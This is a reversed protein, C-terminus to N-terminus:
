SNKNDNMTAQLLYLAKAMHSFATKPSISLKEGVEIYNMGHIRVLLFVERCRPPLLDVAQSVAQLRQQFDITQEPGCNDETLEVSEDEPMSETCQMKKKRFHDIALNHAIRYLYAKVQRVSSSSPSEYLPKFRLFTEQLLDAATDKCRTQRCLWAEIEKHYARFIDDLSTYKM